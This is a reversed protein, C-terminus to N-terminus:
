PTEDPWRKAHQKCYLGRYGSGNQRTCQSFIYGPPPAVEAVCRMSLQAMGRPNGAWEGYRYSPSEHEPRESM